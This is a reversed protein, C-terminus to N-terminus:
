APHRSRYWRVALYGAIAVVATVAIIAIILGIHVGAAQAQGTAVAGGVIVTGATGLGTNTKPAISLRASPDMMMIQRLVPIAGCQGDVASANYRGDSVYKGRTYNSTFSWLYPSNIGKNRYGFGNFKEVEFCAREPTWDTVQDLGDLKLADIAGTEWSIFPGRGKPVLKTKRSLPEGNGLYTSFDAGSEREHLAAIVFWPVGTMHTVDQYRKKNVLLRSAIGNVTALKAAPIVMRKWLDAYEQKLETFTPM